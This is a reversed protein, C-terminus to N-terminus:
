KKDELIKNELLQNKFYEHDKLVEEKLSPKDEEKKAMYNILTTFDADNYNMMTGLNKNVQGFKVDVQEFEKDIQYFGSDIRRLVEAHRMSDLSATHARNASDLSAVTTQNKFFANINKSATILNNLEPEVKIYALTGLFVIALIMFSWALRKKTGWLWKALFSGITKIPDTLLRFFDELPNKEEIDDIKEMTMDQMLFDKNKMKYNKSNM